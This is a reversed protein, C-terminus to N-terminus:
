LRHKPYFTVALNFIHHLHHYLCFGYSLCYQKMPFNVAGLHLPYHCYPLSRPLSHQPTKAKTWQLKRKPSPLRTPPTWPRRMTVLAIHLVILTHWLSLNWDSICTTEALLSPLVWLCICIIAYTVCSLTQESLAQDKGVHRRKKCRLICVRCVGDSWVWILFPFAILYLFYLFFMWLM